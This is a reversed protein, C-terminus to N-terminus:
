LSKQMLAGLPFQDTGATVGPISVKGGLRVAVLAQKLASLPLCDAKGVIDEASETKVEVAQAAPAKVSLWRCGTGKM